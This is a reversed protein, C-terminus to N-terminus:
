KAEEFYEKYFGGVKGSNDIIFYYEETENLVDYTQGPTLVNNVMYKKANTHLCVVKKNAKKNKWLLHNM